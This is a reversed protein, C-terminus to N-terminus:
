LDEASISDVVRSDPVWLHTEQFVVQGECAFVGWEGAPHDYLRASMAIDQNLYVECLTGEVLITLLTPEGPTLWAPRELEVAFPRDGERPWCDFVLRQRQPELRIWYGREFEETARLFVGCSQTEASFSLTAEIKCCGPLEGASLCVYSGAASLQAGDGLFEAQGVAPHFHVPLSSSFFAGVTEPLRVGLTGDAHQVLEHVVLNGGWQWASADNRESRTPNWGFLYRRQGDSASKAAYYARGDFTDERPRLWPGDLSRSMRYRTVSRESFESFVLYWWDGWRFLDPCEHTFYLGPTWFPERVEWHHLDKSTCLATCGRRRSPGTKLRAALLMWYEQAKTNWFVFPDRWDHPEYRDVPAFFTDAPVKQWHVLDSSVANMVGQEPKGKERLYPNHGTYFIHFRGEAQMVSGTFVYLDQEEVSGRPLAQGLDQFHVFDRTSLHFWPTGEGHGGIDRYDKLYFLHFEGNWYFPIFDAAVGDNPQYFLSMQTAGEQIIREKPTITGM